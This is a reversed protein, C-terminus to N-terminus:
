NKNQFETIAAAAIAKTKPDEKMKEEAKDLAYIVSSHNKGFYSGIEKLTLITVEKIVYMAIQRAVTVNASRSESKIEDERVGFQKAIHEIIKNVTVEIPQSDTIIDNIIKQVEEATLPRSYISSTAAIKKVTGELQRINKKIKSAILETIQDSLTIGLQTCKRIIIAKRTDIDPSQIDAMVGMEFRSRLRETLLPMESPPVDSSLVIQKGAQNLTNFTHFFEEQVTEGRQIIQIDDVLLADANRYKERFASTSKKSISEILENLFTEGTVYIVARNKNDKKLQNYIAFLLHTKGLGSHGYILLPNFLEGPKTAAGISANYAINNSKGVIFNDFTYKTYDSKNETSVPHEPTKGDETKEPMVSASDVLIDVDVPFGMVNEFGEKIYSAFKSDIISKKFDSNVVFVVTDNEYKVLELPELWMTFMTDSVKSRCYNLVEKWIENLTDMLQKVGIM